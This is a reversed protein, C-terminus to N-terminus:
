NENDFVELDHMRIIYEYNELLEEVGMARILEALFEEVGLTDYLVEELYLAQEYESMEAFELETVRM